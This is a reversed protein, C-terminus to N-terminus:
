LCIVSPFLTNQTSYIGLSSWTPAYGLLTGPYALGACSTFNAGPLAEISLLYWLPKVAESWDENHGQIARGDSGYTFLDTCHGNNDVRQRTKPPILSELEPTLNAIWVYDLSVKAGDAIGRMEDVLEPFAASNDRKFASFADAGENRVFDLTAQFEDLTFWANIEKAALVGHQYGADYLSHAKIKYFQTEVANTIFIHLALFLFFVIQLNTARLYM